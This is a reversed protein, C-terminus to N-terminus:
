ARVMEDETVGDSGFDPFRIRYKMVRPKDGRRKKWYMQNEVRGRAPVAADVEEKSLYVPRMRVKDQKDLVPEGDTDRVVEMEHIPRGRYCPIPEQTKPDRLYQRYKESSPHYTVWDGQDFQPDGQYRLDTQKRRMAPEEGVKAQKMAELEDEASRAVPMTTKEREVRAVTQEMSAVAQSVMGALETMGKELTKLREDSTSVDKKPRGPGKKDTETTV